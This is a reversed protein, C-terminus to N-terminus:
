VALGAARADDETFHDPAPEDIGDYIAEIHDCWTSYEAWDEPAPEFEPSGGAIPPLDLELVSLPTPELTTWSDLTWPLCSDLGLSEEFDPGGDLFNRPATRIAEAAAKLRDVAALAEALPGALRPDIIKELSFRAATAAISPRITSTALAPTRDYM